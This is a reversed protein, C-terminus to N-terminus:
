GKKGEGKHHKRSLRYGQVKEFGSVALHQGMAEEVWARSSVKYNRMPITGVDVRNSCGHGDGFDQILLGIARGVDQHLPASTDPHVVAQKKVAIFGRSNMIEPVLRLVPVIIQGGMHIAEVALKKHEGRPVFGGVTEVVPPLAESKGHPGAGAEIGFRLATKKRHGVFVLAQAQQLGM